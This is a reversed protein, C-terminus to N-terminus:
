RKRAVKTRYRGNKAEVDRFIPGNSVGMQDLFEIWEDLAERTEGKLNRELNEFTLSALLDQIAKERVKTPTDRGTTKVM